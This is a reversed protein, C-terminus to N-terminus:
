SVGFRQKAIALAVAFTQTLTRGLIQSEMVPEEHFNKVETENYYFVATHV